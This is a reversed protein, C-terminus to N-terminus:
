EFRGLTANIIELPAEEKTYLKFQAAAQYVCMLTGPIVQRGAAKAEKLLKTEAPYIVVDQIVEFHSIVERSVVISQPDDMGVSTANVLLTGTIKPIDEWSIDQASLHKSLAKAKELSRNAILLEAGLEKIAFGIARAVGGAGLMLVKKGQIDIKEIARKAGYYDTNYGKLTGDDQPCITNVSGIEKASVDLEDLFPIVAQKHPMSVSCGRIHFSRIGEIVSQLDDTSEVQRPLYIWNLRLHRYAANHFNAGFNGPCSAISICVQTNKDICFNNKQNEVITRM